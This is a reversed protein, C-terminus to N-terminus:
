NTRLRDEQVDAAACATKVRISYTILDQAVGEKRMDALIADM